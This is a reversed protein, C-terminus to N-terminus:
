GGEAALDERTIAVRERVAAVLGRPPPSYV